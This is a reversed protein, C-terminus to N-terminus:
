IRIKLSGSSNRVIYIGKALNGVTMIEGTCYSRIKGTTDYITIGPNGSSIIENGNFVLSDNNDAIETVVTSIDGQKAFSVTMVHDAESRVAPETPQPYVFNDLASMDDGDTTSSYITSGDIKVEHLIYGEVPSFSFKNREAYIAIKGDFLPEGYNSVTGADPTTYEISFLTNDLAQVKMTNWPKADEAKYTDVASRLVKLTYNPYSEQNGFSGNYGKTDIVTKPASLQRCTVTRTNATGTLYFMANPISTMDEPIVFDRMGYCASFTWGTSGWNVGEPLEHFAVKTERFAYGEIITLKSPFNVETLSTCRNFAGVSIRITQEPLLVKKLTTMGSVFSQNTAFATNPMYGGAPFASKSLDLIELANLNTRIAAIDADNMSAGGASVVTLETIDSYTLQAESVANELETPFMGQSRHTVTLPAAHASMAIATLLLLVTKKM